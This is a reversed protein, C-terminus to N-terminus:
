NSNEYFVKNLTKDEESVAFNVGRIECLNVYLQNKDLLGALMQLQPPM